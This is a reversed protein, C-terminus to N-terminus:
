TARGPDVIVTGVSVWGEWPLGNRLTAKCYYREGERDCTVSLVEEGAETLMQRVADEPGNFSSMMM